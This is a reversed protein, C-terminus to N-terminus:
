SPTPLGAGLAQRPLAAVGLLLLKGVVHEKVVLSWGNCNM